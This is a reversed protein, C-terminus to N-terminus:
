VGKYKTFIIIYIFIILIQVFHIAHILGFLVILYVHFSLVLINHLPILVNILFNAKFDQNFFM